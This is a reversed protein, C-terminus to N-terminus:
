LVAGKEIVLDTSVWRVDIGQSSTKVVPAGYYGVGNLGQWQQLIYLGGGWVGPVVQGVGKDLEALGQGIAPGPDISALAGLVGGGSGDTGLASSIPDTVSSIPNDGGFPTRKGDYWGEHKNFYRLISM